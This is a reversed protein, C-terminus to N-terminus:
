AARVWALRRRAFALAFVLGGFTASGLCTDPIPASVIRVTGTVLFNDVRDAGTTAVVGGSASVTSRDILRFFISSDDDLASVSTLDFSFAYAPRVTGSSWAPNPSGGNELVSYNQFDTFTTGDTSYSIKFDRPGGASSTQDLSVNINDYGATSLSFQWYDGVGWRNASFSENSGNGTPNSYVTSLDAHFGLAAGAGVEPSHPGATTPVSTEFTWRAIDVPVAHLLGSSGALLLSFLGRKNM